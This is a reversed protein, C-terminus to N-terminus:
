PQKESQPLQARLKVIEAEANRMWELALMAWKDLTGAAMARDMFAELGDVDIPIQPM